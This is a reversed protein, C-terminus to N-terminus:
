RHGKAKNMREQRQQEKYRLNDLAIRYSVEVSTMSALMGSMTM